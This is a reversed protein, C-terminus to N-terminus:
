VVGRAAHVVCVSVCVCACVCSRDIVSLTVLLLLSFNM